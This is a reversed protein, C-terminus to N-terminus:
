QRKSVGTTVAGPDTQIFQFEKGGDVLVFDLHTSQGFNDTFIASGTCGPNVAYTGTIIRRIVVGNVSVTDSATLAGRGDAIVQGVAAIPGSGVNTGAVLYGYPGDVSRLSCGHNAEAPAAGTQLSLLAVVGCYGISRRSIM